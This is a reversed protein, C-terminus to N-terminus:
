DAKNITDRTIQISDEEINYNMGKTDDGILNSLEDLENQNIGLVEKNKENLEQVTGIMSYILPIYSIKLYAAM